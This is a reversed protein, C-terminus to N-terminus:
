KRLIAKLEPVLSDAWIEYGKETLHLGDWSVGDALQDPAKMFREGIDIFKINWHGDYRALIKNAEQSNKHAVEGGPHSRPFIAYLLIKAKPLRKHVRALVAGVGAAIEEPKDRFANNTGIMVVVAQPDLAGDLNGNDLRWLLTETTEGGIGFNVANFPAIREKWVSAGNKPNFAEWCHTISDGLFMVDFGGKKAQENFSKTRGQVVQDNPDRPVPVIAKADKAVEPIPPPTDAAHTLSATLLVLIANLVTAKMHHTPSLNKISFMGNVM